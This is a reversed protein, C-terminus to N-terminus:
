FKTADQWLKQQLDKESVTPVAEGLHWDINLTPDNWLLGHESAPTFYEDQQYHAVVDDTLSM